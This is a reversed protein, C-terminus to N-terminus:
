ARDEANTSRNLRAAVAPRCARWEDALLGLRVIDVFRDDVRHHERLTGEVHFGFKQHLRVVPANFALVECHLKHLGMPGFALDLALLEMRSGTGRPAEPSAYFAWAANANRHDIDTFGVVGWPRGDSEFMHYRADSRAQTRAWWALHEELSIVHRNYMNQRVSPANRWSLVLPLEDDRIDRLRQTGPTDPM